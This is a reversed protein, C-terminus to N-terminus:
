SDEDVVEVVTEKRGGLLISKKPKFEKVMAKWMKRREKMEENEKKKQLKNGERKEKPVNTGPEDQTTSVLYPAVDHRWAAVRDDSSTEFLTDFDKTEAERLEEELSKPRDDESTDDQNGSDSSIFMTTAATTLALIILFTCVAKFVTMLGKEKPSTTAKLLTTTILM